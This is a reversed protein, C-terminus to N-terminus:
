GFLSGLESQGAKRHSQIWKRKEFMMHRLSWASRFASLSKREFLLTYAFIALDYALIAWSDRWFLAPIENKMMLLYRNRVGYFRMDSSVRERQGPRFSRIHHAVAEPAYLARWGRLQARWCVDVDEKHMFFDTDFIEGQVRIDELMARRYFAAAGDPGFIPTSSTTHEGIPCGDDRLRQRRNRSMMLGTSDVIEPTDGLHGVRLLCGAVSGTDPNADMVRVLQKLYDPLLLVDPNLTLIYQSGTAELAQNHAAAYGINRTNRHVSIGMNEIRNVTDDSSSNDVVYVSFEADQQGVLSSLCTEITQSSNYTVLHVSISTM